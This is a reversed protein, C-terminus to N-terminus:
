RSIGGGRVEPSEGATREGLAAASRETLKEGVGVLMGRWPKANNKSKSMAAPPFM